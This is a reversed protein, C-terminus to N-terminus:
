ASAEVVDEVCDLSQLFGESLTTTIWVTIRNGEPDLEFDPDNEGVVLLFDRKAKDDWKVRAKYDDKLRVCYKTM